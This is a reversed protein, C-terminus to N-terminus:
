SKYQLNNNNYLFIAAHMRSYIINDCLWKNQKCYQLLLSKRFYYVSYTGPHHLPHHYPDVPHPHHYYSHTAQPHYYSDHSSPIEAYPGAIVSMDSVTPSTCQDQTGAVLCAGCVGRCEWQSVCWSASCYCLPTLRNLAKM